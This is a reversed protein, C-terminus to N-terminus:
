ADTKYTFAFSAIQRNTSGTNVQVQDNVSAGSASVWNGSIITDGANLYWSM